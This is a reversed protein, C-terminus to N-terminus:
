NNLFSEAAGLFADKSHCLKYMEALVAFINLKAQTYVHESFDKCMTM